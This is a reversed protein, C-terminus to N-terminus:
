GKALAAKFAPRALCVGMWASVKPLSALLDKAPRLYTMVASVNLDAVTFRDGVLFDRTALHQELVALPRRLDQVAAAVLEPKRQDEPLMASHFLVTLGHKEVETMVWYSWMNMLADEQIDKGALPGGHKRALYLNIAMSEFLVFGDDDITPIRGNPNINKYSEAATDGTKYDTSILEYSLGLEEALWMPRIARSRAIGYIKLM